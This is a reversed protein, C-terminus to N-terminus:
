HITNFTLEIDADENPQEGKMLLALWDPIVGDVPTPISSELIQRDVAELATRVILATMYENDFM